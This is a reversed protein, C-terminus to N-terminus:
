LRGSNSHAAARDAEQSIRLPPLPMPYCAPSLSGIAACRRSAIREVTRRPGGHKVERQAQRLIGLRRARRPGGGSQHGRRHQREGGHM